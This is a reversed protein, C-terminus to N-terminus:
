DIKRFSNRAEKITVIGKETEKKIRVLNGENDYEYFTAYNNDDLEAMTRLSKNDYVYTNMAANFPMIRLDDFNAPTGGTSFLKIMMTKDTSNITFTGEIRQWGEIIPGAPKLIVTRYGSYSTLEIIPLANSFIIQVGANSYDLNLPNTGVKVWASLVYKGTSPEFVGLQDTNKTMYGSTSGTTPFLNDIQANTYVVSLRSSDSVKYSANGTHYYETDILQQQLDFMGHYAPTSLNSVKKNTISGDQEFNYSLIQNYQANNAVAVPMTNNFGYLAANYINLANKSEVELGNTNYKTVEKTFQWNSNTTKEPRKSTSNQIWFNQFTNYTGDRRIDSAGTQPNRKGVYAWNRKTKWNNQLGNTFPNSIKATPLPNCVNQEFHQGTAYIQATRIVIRTLPSSTPYAKLLLYDNNTVFSNYPPPLASSSVSHNNAYLDMNGIFSIGSESNIQPIGGANYNTNTGDNYFYSPDYCDCANHNSFAAVPLWTYNILSKDVTEACSTPFQYAPSHCNYSPYSSLDITNLGAELYIKYRNCGFLTDITETRYSFKYQYNANSTGTRNIYLKVKFTSASPYIKSFLTKFGSYVSTATLPINVEHMTNGTYSAYNLSDTNFYKAQILYSLLEEADRTVFYTSPNYNFNNNMKSLSDFESVSVNLINSTNNLSTGNSAPDSLQTYSAIPMSQMNKRGSDIVKITSSGTITQFLGNQDMIRWTGNDNYVWYKNIASGWQILDGHYLFLGPSNGGITFATSSASAITLTAGQNKYAPGMGEYAWHAPYTTNYIYDDFENQTKSVLVEGTQGDFVTNETTLTAGEEYAITRKLIGYKNVVKMSSASQFLTEDSNYNPFGTLIALPVFSIFMNDLNLDLGGSFSFSSFERSDIVVEADVGVTAQQITGDQNAINVINNLQRKGTQNTEFYEYVMGSYADKISTSNINKQNFNWVAKPKGHMDNLEIRQSQAMKLEKDSTVYLLAWILGQGGEVVDLNNNSVITPFDKATYFENIVKGTGNRTIQTSTYADNGSKVTVKSYGVSAAPFFNEGYPRETFHEEDPVFTNERSYANALEKFPNEDAGMQPEWSAVGSSIIVPNDSADVGNQTTYDFLQTFKNTRYDQGSNTNGEMEKWNDSSTIKKVRSGGGLKFGNTNNLRVWSKSALANSAFEKRILAFNQGNFLDFMEVRFGWLTRAFSELGSSGSKIINADPNVLYPLNLRAFNFAAASIPNIQDGRNKKVNVTELELWVIKTTGNDSREGINKLKAYGRIYEYHGKDDIDVLVNYYMQDINARLDNLNTNSAVEVFLFNFNEDGGDEYLIDKLPSTTSTSGFGKLKYMQMAKRDQVYAYDDSEYEVEIAGGSPLIIKSLTWQAVYVDALAKDQIVYPFETSLLTTNSNCAATSVDNTTTNVNVPKYNGWVDYGKLHYPQNYQAQDDNYEFKYSNYKGKNSRGYKFYVKRLTLKGSNDDITNYATIGNYATTTTNINNHVNPCLTYSYEFVATKIPTSLDTRAYLVVSDLKYSKSDTGLGGTEDAVGYGDNRPSTYFYAVHNKGEIANVHWIEKTGYIINANDDYVDSQLGKNYNARDKTYPVRWKYSDNALTYNIKTYTGIDNSSPGNNDIDQYDGSLIDTLLYSHAYAPTNVIEKHHDIGKFNNFAPDYEVEGTYCFLDPISNNDYDKANTFSYEKQSNNYAAIGYVYKTGDPKIVTMESNHHAKRNADTRNLEGTAGDPGFGAAYKIKKNLCFDSEANSLSKIFVNRKDRKDRHYKGMKDMAIPGKYSLDEVTKFPNFFKLVFDKDLNAYPNFSPDISTKEGINKFYAYEFLPNTTGAASKIGKDDFIDAGNARWRRATSKAYNMSLGLGYKILNGGGIEYGISGGYSPNNYTAPDSVVPIDNRYSKFMGGIGQGSYSYLDQTLQPIGITPNEASFSGDKERNFDLINEDSNANQLYQTGYAKRSINNSSLWQESYYGGIDYTGALGWFTTGMKFSFAGNANQMPMSVNPTYTTSSFSNYSGKGFEQDFVGNTTKNGQKIEKSKEIGGNINVAKLGQRSNLNFSGGLKYNTNGGKKTISVGPQLTAGDHSSYNMGLSFKTKIKDGASYSPTIGYDFGLGKFNNYNIGLNLSLKLSRGKLANKTDKGFLEIGVGGNLGLTYDNKHRLERSIEEGNFDDPIGRMNRNIVGPNLNWGLGVWSAEQDMTVGSHYALNIPYGDIDMLPINYNFDGSFLDVLQTTGVPEFSQVEPQSPGGTLAWSINPAILQFTFVILLFISTPRTLKRKM